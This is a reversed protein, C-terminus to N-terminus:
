LYLAILKGDPSVAVQETGGFPKMPSDFREGEMIDFAEHIGDENYSALFIHNYTYDHWSDWHRYMLDNELRAKAKPLDPYM